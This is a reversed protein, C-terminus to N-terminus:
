HSDLKLSNLVRSVFHRYDQLKLPIIVQKVFVERSTKEAPLSKVRKVRKTNQNFFVFADESNSAEKSVNKDNKMVKLKPFVFPCDSLKEKKKQKRSKFFKLLRTKINEEERFETKVDWLSSPDKHMNNVSTGIGPVGCRGTWSCDSIHFLM